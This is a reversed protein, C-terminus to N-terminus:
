ASCTDGTLIQAQQNEVAKRQEDIAEFDVIGVNTIQLDNFTLATMLDAMGAMYGADFCQVEKAVVMDDIKLMVTKFEPANDEIQDTLAKYKEHMELYEHSKCHTQSRNCLVDQFADSHSVNAIMEPSFPIIKIPIGSDSIASKISM